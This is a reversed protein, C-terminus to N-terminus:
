EVAQTETVFIAEVNESHTSQVSVGSTILTNICDIIENDIIEGPVTIPIGPPYAFIYELCIRGAANKLNICVGDEPLDALRLHSKQPIPIKFPTIKESDATITQDIEKLAKALRDFSEKSDCVSTMAVAYFPYSMELEIRYKERLISMLEVGNISCGTTCIVIKGIDFSYFNHNELSDNGHCLVTLHKLERMSASFATLKNKYQIFADRNNLLFDFCHDMSAMLIYSPSSTEFIALQREFAKPNVLNGNIHAIATQTLSPLTKHLSSIVIDAGNSIPEGKCFDCFPQHAGHANDVILPINHSHVIDAIARIDSIVGEYTPSTIIVARSRPYQEVAKKISQPSISGSVGSKKDQQPHIFHMDLNNLLCGNYVAKHCNRAIIIEDGYHTVTRVAALIGCTSGNILMYSHESHFVEKAKDAANKLIGDANHLNDFGNIETIDIDYPLSNGLLDTNRKHGPMHFPCADSKSYNKLSDYLNLNNNFSKM